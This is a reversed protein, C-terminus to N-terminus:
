GGERSSTPPRRQAGVEDELPEQSVSLPHIQGKSDRLEISQDSTTITLSCPGLGM